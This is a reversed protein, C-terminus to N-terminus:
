ECALDRYGSVKPDSCATCGTAYTKTSGDALTACVPRYERTCIQPRPETCATMTSTADRDGTTEHSSACGGTVLALLLITTCIGSRHLM